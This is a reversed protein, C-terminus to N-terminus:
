SSKTKSKNMRKIIKQIDYNQSDIVLRAGLSFDYVLYQDVKVEEWNPPKKEFMFSESILVGYCYLDEENYVSMYKDKYKLLDGKNFIV